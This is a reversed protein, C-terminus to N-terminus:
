APAPPRSATMKAAATNRGVPEPIAEGRLDAAQLAGRV